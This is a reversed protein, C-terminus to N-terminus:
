NYPNKPSPLPRTPEETHPAKRKWLIGWLGLRNLNSTTVSLNGTIQSVNAAIQEDKLLKGALGKGAQVQDLLNKLTATSAELNTIAARIEPANTAVVGNVNDAILNIRDSFAHLNSVSGTIPPRNSEVLANVNDVAAIARESATRLNVVMESLNTLTHENLLEERIKAIVGNVQGVTDELRTLLKVASRAAEQINLPPEAYAVDGDAFLPAENKTPLIAVYQDGLFGSTEFSFEADKHIQYQAYIRLVISVNTGMPGLAVDSVSGVQVGSMTVQARVKLGSVNESLLIIRYTPRFFSTGKSFQLLLVALLVLGIFVFLGVKWELRSKDM